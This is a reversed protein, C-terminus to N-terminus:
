IPVLHGDSQVNGLPSPLAEEKRELGPSRSNMLVTSLSSCPFSVSVSNGFSLWGWVVCATLVGGFGCSVEWLFLRGGCRSHTGASLGEGATAPPPPLDCLRRESCLPRDPLERCAQGKLPRPSHSNVYVRFYNVAASLRVQNGTGSGVGLSVSDPDRGGAGAM